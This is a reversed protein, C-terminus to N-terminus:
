NIISKVATFSDFNFHLDFHKCLDLFNDKNVIDKVDNVVYVNSNLNNKLENIKNSLHEKIASKDHNFLDGVTKNKNNADPFYNYTTQLFRQYTKDLDPIIFIEKSNPFIKRTLYVNEHMPYVFKNPYIKKCWLKIIAQQESIISNSKSGVPIITKPCVGNGLAGKFRRNFHFKTFGSDKEAYPEWPNKGNGEYDYWSVDDCSCILRGLMHGGAGQPFNITICNNADM